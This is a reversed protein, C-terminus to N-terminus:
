RFIPHGAFGLLLDICAFAVIIVFVITVIQKAPAPLPILSVIWWLLGLVIVCVVLWILLNLVGGADGHAVYLDALLSLMQHCLLM